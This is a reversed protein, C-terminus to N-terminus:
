CFCCASTASRKAPQDAHQDKINQSNRTPEYLIMTPANCENAVPRGVNLKRWYFRSIEGRNYYSDVEWFPEPCHVLNYCGMKM